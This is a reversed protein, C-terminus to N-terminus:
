KSINKNNVYLNDRTIQFDIEENNNMNSAQFAKLIFYLLYNQM